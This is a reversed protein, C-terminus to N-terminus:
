FKPAFIKILKINNKEKKYMENNEKLNIFINEIMFNLLKKNVINIDNQLIKQFSLMCIECKLYSLNESKFAFKINKGPFPFHCGKKNLFCKLKFKKKM